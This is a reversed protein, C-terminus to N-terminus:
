LLFAGGCPPASSNLGPLDADKRVGEAAAGPPRRQRQRIAQLDSATLGLERLNTIQTTPFYPYDTGYTVQSVPVLKLLAAMQAPHTANATDYHLRRLEGEISDPALEKV